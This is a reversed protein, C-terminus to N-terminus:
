YVGEMNEVISDHTAHGNFNKVFAKHDKRNQLTSRNSYMWDGKFTSYYAVTPAPQIGSATSPSTQELIPAILTVSEKWIGNGKAPRVDIWLSNYGIPIGGARDAYKAITGSITEPAFTHAVPTAAGDNLVINGFTPM